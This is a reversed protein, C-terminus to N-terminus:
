KNKGKLMCKLSFILLIIRVFDARIKRFSFLTIKTLNQWRRHPLRSSLFSDKKRDQLKLCKKKWLWWWCIDRSSLQVSITSGRLTVNKTRVSDYSVSIVRAHLQNCFIYYNFLKRFYHFSTQILQTPEKFRKWTDTIFLACFNLYFFILKLSKQSFHKEYM